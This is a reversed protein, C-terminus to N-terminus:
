YFWVLSFSLHSYRSELLLFYNNLVVIFKYLLVLADLQFMLNQFEKCYGLKGKNVWNILNLTVDHM